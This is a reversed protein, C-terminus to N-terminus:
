AARQKRRWAGFGTLASMLLWGAAPLPVAQVEVNDFAGFGGTDFTISKALSGTFSLTAAQWLCFPTTEACSASNAALSFTGLQTGTGNLGSWATVTGVDTAAYSFTVANAFAGEAFNMASAPGVDTIVGIPSPAGTFFQSFEDNVVGLVDGGFSIGTTGLYLDGVPTGSTVDEFTLTVPAAFAPAVSLLATVTLASILKINM